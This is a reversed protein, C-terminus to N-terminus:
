GWLCRLVPRGEPGRHEAEDDRQKNQKNQKGPTRIM